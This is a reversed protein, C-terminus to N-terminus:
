CANGQNAPGGSPDQWEKDRLTRLHKEDLLQQESEDSVETEIQEAIESAIIRHSFLCGILATMGTVCLVVAQWSGHPGYCSIGLGSFYLAAAGFYCRRAWVTGPAVTEALAATGSLAAILVLASLVITDAIDSDIPFPLRWTRVSMTDRVALMAVGYCLAVIVQNRLRPHLLSTGILLLILPLAAARGSAWSRLSGELSVAGFALAAPLIALAIKILWRPM